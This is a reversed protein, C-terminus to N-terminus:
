KIGLWEDIADLNFILIRPSPRQHPIKGQRLLSFITSESIPAGVSELYNSLAKAGRVHRM